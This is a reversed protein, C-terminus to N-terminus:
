RAVPRRRFESCIIGAAVAVNLSGSTEKEAPYNPIFLRKGIFAELPPRIGNGENGMVVIGTASLEESYIHSGELFAGYVPVSAEKQARLYVELDTYHVKVNALAGMTAQVVKPNFVDATDRSCVIHGIGFWGALRVITGLNGPDQVGDLALTLQMGPNVEELKWDPQKFVAIVDQPNKLFSARRIDGEGAELLEKTPINGQNAMWSTRAIIVEGTFAPLMDAVLKNGEAVFVGYENRYKKAGLSRIYKLTSKAVM